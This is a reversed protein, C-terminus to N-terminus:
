FGCHLLYAILQSRPPCVNVSCNPSTLADLLIRFLTITSKIIRPNSNNSGSDSEFGSDDSSSSDSGSESSDDEDATNDEDSGDNKDSDADKDRDDNKTKAKTATKTQTALIQFLVRERDQM